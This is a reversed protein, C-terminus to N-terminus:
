GTNLKPSLYPKKRFFWTPSVYEIALSALSTITALDAVTTQALQKGLQGQTWTILWSQDEFLLTNVLPSSPM